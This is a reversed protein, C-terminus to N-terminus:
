LDNNGKRLFSVARQGTKQKRKTGWSLRIYGTKDGPMHNIQVHSEITTTTTTTTLQWVCADLRVINPYLNFCAGFILM